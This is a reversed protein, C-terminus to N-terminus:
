DIKTFTGGTAAAIDKLMKEGLAAISPKYFSAICHGFTYVKVRKSKAENIVRKGTEPCMWSYNEVTEANYYGDLVNACGDTHLIVVEVGKIALAKRMADHIPTTGGPRFCGIWALAKQKNQPTAKHVSGWLAYISLAVRARVGNWGEVLFASYVVASFKVNEALGLVSKKFEVTIHQWKTPHEIVDGDENTIPHGVGGFMSGTKDLVYVVSEGEVEEDFFEIPPNEEDEDEEDEGADEDEENTEDEEEWGGPRTPKPLPLDVKEGAHQPKYVDQAFVGTLFAGAVVLIVAFLVWVLREM